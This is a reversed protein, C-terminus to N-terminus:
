AVFIKRIAEVIEAVPQDKILLGHIGRNSVKTVDLAGPYATLIFIKTDPLDRVITRAASFGDLGAMRFDILVVDPRLALAIEIGERGDAAEGVVEMGAQLKLLKALRRRYEANDDVLVVRIVGANM